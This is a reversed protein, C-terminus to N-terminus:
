GLFPLVMLSDPDVGAKTCVAEAKLMYQEALTEDGIELYATGLGDYCPFLLQPEGMEEALQLAERYYDLAREVDGHCHYIQGLVILPVALHDIQGLRRDLDIATQAAAVGDEECRGTLTCYAGALTAYLWPQLGLDGIKRALELGALCTEIARAPQLTSYLVGLNARARSAERLLNHDLAVTLGRELHDVAASLDQTRALAIGLTNHARAAATAAEGDTGLACSMLREALELAQRAWRIAEHHDGGRFALRGMEQYLMALEVHEPQDALLALGREYATRAQSRNGANWYLSAIQRQLRAQGPRDAAAELAQLADM